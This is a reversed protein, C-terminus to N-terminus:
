SLINFSFLLILSVEAAIKIATRHESIICQKPFEAQLLKIKYEQSKLNICHPRLKTCKCLCCSFLCPYTSFFENKIAVKRVHISLRKKIPRWGLAATLSSGRGGSQLEGWQFLLLVAPRWVCRSKM